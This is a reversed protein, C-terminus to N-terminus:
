GHDDDAVGLHRKVERHHRDLKRHLGLATPIGLLGAWVLSAALNPWVQGDPWGFWSALWANM